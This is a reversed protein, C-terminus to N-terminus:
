GPNMVARLSEIVDGALMGREGGAAALDGAAAHACVGLAAAAELGHGQAALGAIVGTLVDGTGGTALGPNGDSCLRPLAGASAVLTGAGKLVCVGGYREVIAAAAAFRDAQIEAAPRGLLRGAEAPHPTLVWNPRTTPAAALANLGDADLVLPHGLALAARWMRAGWEGRGLGPGLAVVDAREALAALEQATDVGRFMLEARAAALAAAHEARTAISVLGAGSRAAAEAALRAAGAYGLDGGVVLVHGHTGKHASRRRRGLAALDARDIREAGAAVGRYVADPVGLADFRLEGRLEPGEGTFLGRKLGIFTVTLAARM